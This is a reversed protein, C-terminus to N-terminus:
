ATAGRLELDLPERAFLFGRYEGGSVTTKEECSLEAVIRYEPLFQSMLRDLSLFWCPYKVPYISPPVIQVTLRDSCSEILVPTRDVIVYPFQHLLLSRLVDYPQPLYQLVSSLLLVQPAGFHVCDEVRLRFYPPGCPFLEEGREVFAPQEVVSWCLDKLGALFQRNQLYSSALSGGFDIVDLSGGNQAAVWLLSALLPWRYDPRDFCVSDREFSASGDLVRRTARTVRDLVTISDYGDSHVLAEKWSRFNGVYRTSRGSLRRLLPVFFPPVLCRLASPM